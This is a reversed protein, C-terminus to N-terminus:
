GSMATIARRGMTTCYTGAIPVSPLIMRVIRVGPAPKIATTSPRGCRLGPASFPLPGPSPTGRHRPRPPGYQPQVNELVSRSPDLQARDGIAADALLRISWGAFLYRRLPAPNGNRFPRARQGRQESDRGIRVVGQQQHAGLPTGRRPEDRLLALRISRDVHIWSFNTRSNTVIPKHSSCCILTDAHGRM